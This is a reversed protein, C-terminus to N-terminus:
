STDGDSRRKNRGHDLYCYTSSGAVVHRISSFGKGLYLQGLVGQWLYQVYYRSDQSKSSWTLFPSAAQWRCKTQLVGLPNQGSNITSFPLVITREWCCPLCSNSKRKSSCTTPDQARQCFHSLFSSQSQFRDSWLLSREFATSNISLLYTQGAPVLSNRTYSFTCLYTQQNEQEEKCKLPLYSCM